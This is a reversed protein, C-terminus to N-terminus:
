VVPADWMIAVAEPDSASVMVALNAGPYVRSTYVVPVVLDKAVPRPPGGQQSVLLEVRMTPNFNVMGTAPSVTVVQATGPVGDTMAQTAQAMSENMAKMQALMDHAQAGPDWTKDLEKAQQNLKHIDKFFGMV